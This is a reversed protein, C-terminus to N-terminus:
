FCHRIISAQKVDLTLSVVMNFLDTDSAQHLLFTKLVYSPTAIECLAARAKYIKTQRLLRVARALSACNLKIKQKIPVQSLKCNQRNAM